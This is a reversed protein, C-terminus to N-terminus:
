SLPRWVSLCELAHFHRQGAPEAEGRQEGVGLILQPRGPLNSGRGWVGLSPQPSLLTNERISFLVEPIETKKRPLLSSGGGRAELLHSFGGDTQTPRSDSYLLLQYPTNSKPVRHGPMLLSVGPKTRDPARQLEVGPLALCFPETPSEKGRGDERISNQRRSTVGPPVGAGYGKEDGGVWFQMVLSPSIM